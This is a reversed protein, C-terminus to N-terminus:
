TRAKGKSTRLKTLAAATLIAQEGGDLGCAEVEGACVKDNEGAHSVPTPSTLLPSPTWPNRRAKATAPASVTTM